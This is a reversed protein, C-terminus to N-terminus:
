GNKNLKNLLTQDIDFSLEKTKKGKVDVFTNVSVVRNDELEKTITSFATNNQANYVGNFKSTDSKKEVLLREINTKTIQVSEYMEGKTKNYSIGNNSVSIKHISEGEYKYVSHFDFMFNLSTILRNKKDYIKVKNM